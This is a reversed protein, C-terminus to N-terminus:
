EWGEAIEFWNVSSMASNILDTLMTGSGYNPYDQEILEEVYGKLAEGAKNNAHNKQDATTNQWDYEEALDTLEELADARAQEILHGTHRYLPEENSLWLNVVWTEHNTWGQYKEDSVAVSM